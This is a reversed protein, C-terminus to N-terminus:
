RDNLIRLARSLKEKLSINEYELFSVKEYSNEGIGLSRLVKRLECKNGAEDVVNFKVNKFKKKLKSAIILYNEVNIHSIKLM